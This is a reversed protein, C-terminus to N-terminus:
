FLLAKQFSIEQGRIIVAISCLAFSHRKGNEKNSALVLGNTQGSRNKSKIGSNRCTIITYHNSSYFSLMVPCNRVTKVTQGGRKPCSRSDGPKM